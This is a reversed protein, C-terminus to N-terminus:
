LRYPTSWARRCYNVLNTSSIYRSSNKLSSNQLLMVSEALSSETVFSFVCKFLDIINISSATSVGDGFWLRLDIVIFVFARGDLVGTLDRLLMRLLDLLDPSLTVFSLIARDNPMASLNFSNFGTETKDLGCVTLPDNM